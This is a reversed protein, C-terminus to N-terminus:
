HYIGIPLCHYWSGSNTGDLEYEPRWLQMLMKEATLGSLGPAKHRKKLAAAVEGIKICDASLFRIIILVTPPHINRRTGSVQITGSFPGYFLQQQQEKQL